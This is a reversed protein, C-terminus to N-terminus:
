GAADALELGPQGRRKSCSTRRPVRVGPLTEPVTGRGTEGGDVAAGGLRGLQDAGSLDDDGTGM